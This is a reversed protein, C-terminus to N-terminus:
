NPNGTRFFVQSKYQNRDDIDAHFPRLFASAEKSIGAASPSDVVGSGCFYIDDSLNRLKFAAEPSHLQISDLSLVESSIASGLYGIVSVSLEIAKAAFIRMHSDTTFLSKNGSSKDGTRDLNEISPHGILKSLFPVGVSFPIYLHVLLDSYLQAMSIMCRTEFPTPGTMPINDFLNSSEIGIEQSHNVSAPRVVKVPTITRPDSYLNGEEIYVPEFKQDELKENDIMIENGILSTKVISISVPQADTIQSVKSDIPDALGTDRVDRLSETINYNDNGAIINGSKIIRTEVIPTVRKKVKNPKVLMTRSLMMAVDTASSTSLANVDTEAETLEYTPSFLRFSKSDVNNEAVSLQESTPSSVKDISECSRLLLLFQEELWLQYVEAFGPLGGYRKLFQNIPSRSNPLSIGNTVDTTGQIASALQTLIDNHGIQDECKLIIDQIEEFRLRLQEKNM